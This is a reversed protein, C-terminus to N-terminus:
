VLNKLIECEVDVISLLEVRDILNWCEYALTLSSPLPRSNPGRVHCIEGSPRWKSNKCSM